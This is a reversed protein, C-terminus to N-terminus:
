ELVSSVIFWKKTVIANIANICRLILVCLGSASGTFRSMVTVVIVCTLWVGWVTLLMSLCWWISVVLMVMWVPRQGARGQIGKLKMIHSSLRRNRGPGWWWRRLYLWQYLPKKDIHLLISFPKLPLHEPFIITPKWEKSFVILMMCIIQPLFSLHHHTNYMIVTAVQCHIIM